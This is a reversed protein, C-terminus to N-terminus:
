KVTIVYHKNHSLLSVAAFSVLLKNSQCDFLHVTEMPFIWDTQQSKGDGKIKWYRQGVIFKTKRIGESDSKCHTRDSIAKRSGVWIKNKKKQCGEDRRGGLIEVQILM